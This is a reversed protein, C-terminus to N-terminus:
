HPWRAYLENEIGMRLLIRGVITDIIEQMGQPRAYFAPVPPFIIAGSQAALSMLRLHGAHLPTERVALILPRGEKLTVDAARSLLDAAYANAVASLTKISCPLIAMGMTQFAGSAIRAGVDAHDYSFDALALVQEVKWDTEELITNQAAPTVVLHSEVDLQRLAELLRIGLIAGSAGSIGVVLRRSKESL